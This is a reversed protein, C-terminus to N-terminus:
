VVAMTLKRNVTHAKAEDKMLLIVLVMLITLERNKM